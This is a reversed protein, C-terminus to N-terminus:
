SHEGIWEPEKRPSPWVVSRRVARRDVYSSAAEAAGPLGICSLGRRAIAREM